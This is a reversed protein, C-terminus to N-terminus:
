LSTGPRIRPLRVLHASRRRAITAARDEHALPRWVPGHHRRGVRNVISEYHRVAEMMHELVPDLLQRAEEPDWDALFEMSGKLDAFLVTM